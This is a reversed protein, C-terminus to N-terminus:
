LHIGKRHFLAPRRIKEDLFSKAIKYNIFDSLSKLTNLVVAKSVQSLGKCLSKYSDMRNDVIYKAENYNSDRLYLHGKKSIQFTIKKKRLASSIRNLDNRMFHKVKDMGVKLAEVEKSLTEVDNSDEKACSFLLLLVFFVVLSKHGYRM